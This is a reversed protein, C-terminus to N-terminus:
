FNKIGKYLMRSTYNGDEDFHNNVKGLYGRRTLSLIKDRVTFASKNLAKSIQTNTLLSYDRNHHNMDAIVMQWISKDVPSLNTETTM